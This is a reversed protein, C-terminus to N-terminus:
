KQSDQSIKQVLFAETIRHIYKIEETDLAALMRVIEEITSLNKNSISPNLLQMESFDQGYLDELSLKILENFPINLAKSFGFLYKISVCKRQGLEIRTIHAKSWGVKQSLKEISWGRREREYRIKEGLKMKESM